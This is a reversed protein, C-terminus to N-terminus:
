NGKKNHNKILTEIKKREKEPCNQVAKLLKDPHKKIASDIKGKFFFRHQAFLGTTVMKDNYIFHLAFQFWLATALFITKLLLWTRSFSRNFSIYFLAYFAPLFGIILGTTLINMPLIDLFGLTMVPKRFAKQNETMITTIQKQAYNNDIYLFLFALVLYVLLLIAARKIFFSYDFGKGRILRLIMSVLILLYVIGIFYVLNQRLIIASGIKMRSVIQTSLEKNPNNEFARKYYKHMKRYDKLIFAIDGIRINVRQSLESDRHKRLAQELEKNYEKKEDETKQLYNVKLLKNLELNRELYGKMKVISDQATKCGTQLAIEYLSQATQPEDMEYFAITAATNLATCPRIESEQTATQGFLLLNYIFNKQINRKNEVPQILLELSDATLFFNKLFRRKEFVSILRLHNNARCFRFPDKFAEVALRDIDIEAVDKDTQKNSDTSGIVVKSHISIFFVVFLVFWKIINKV